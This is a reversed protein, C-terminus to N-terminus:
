RGGCLGLRAPRVADDSDDLAAALAGLLQANEQGGEKTTGFDAAAAAANVDGAPAGRLATLRVAASEDAVRGLLLHLVHRALASDSQAAAAAFEAAAATVAERQGPSRASVYPYMREFVARATCGAEPTCLLAGLAREMAVGDETSAAAASVLADFDM